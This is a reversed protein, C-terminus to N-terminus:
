RQRSSIHKTASKKKASKLKMDSFVAHVCICLTFMSNNIPYLKQSKCKELKNDADDDESSSSNHLDNCDTSDTVSGNHDNHEDAAAVPTSAIESIELPECRELEDDTEDNDNRSEQLDTPDVTDTISGGCEGASVVSTSFMEPTEIASFHIDLSNNSPTADFNLKSEVSPPLEEEVFSGSTSLCRRNEDSVSADILECNSRTTSSQERPSLPTSILEPTKIDSFHIDFPSSCSCSHENPSSREDNHAAPSLSKDSTNGANDLISQLQVFVCLTM